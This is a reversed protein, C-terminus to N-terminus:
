IDGAAGAAALMIGGPGQVRTTTALNTISQDSVGFIADGDAYVDTWEPDGPDAHQLWSQGNWHFGLDEGSTLGHSRGLAYAETATGVIHSLSYSTLFPSDSTRKTWTALVL